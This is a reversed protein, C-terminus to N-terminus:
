LKHLEGAPQDDPCLHESDVYALGGAPPLGIHQPRAQEGDSGPYGTVGAAGLRRSDAFVAWVSRSTM